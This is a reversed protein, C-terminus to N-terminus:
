SVNVFPDEDSGEEVDGQCRLTEKLVGTVLSEGENGTRERM